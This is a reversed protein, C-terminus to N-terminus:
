EGKVLLWCHELVEPVGAEAFKPPVADTPCEDLCALSGAAGFLREVDQPTVSFPPGEVLSQDYAIASLLLRGGAPLFSMLHRAYMERRAPEIAILAARDFIRDISGVTEPTLEFFDCQYFRFDDAAADQPRWVPGCSAQEKRYSLQHDNFFAEVADEIFEVGAVRHGQEALWAVDISKGCLPVLIDHSSEDELWAHLHRALHPNVHDRHFGIRGSRWRERWFEQEM